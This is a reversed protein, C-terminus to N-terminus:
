ENVLNLAFKGAAIDYNMILIQYTTLLRIWRDDTFLTDHENLQRMWM